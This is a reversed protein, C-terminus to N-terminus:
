LRTIESQKHRYFIYLTVWVYIPQGKKTYIDQKKGTHLFNLTLRRYFVLLVQLQNLILSIHFTAIHPQIKDPAGSSGSSGNNGNRRNGGNNKSCGSCGSCGGCKGKEKMGKRIKFVFAIAAAAVIAYVIVEEM